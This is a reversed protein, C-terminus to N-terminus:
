INVDFFECFSSFILCFNKNFYKCVCFNLKFFFFFFFFFFCFCGTMKGDLVSQLIISYGAKGNTLTQGMLAAMDQLKERDPVSVKSAADCFEQL